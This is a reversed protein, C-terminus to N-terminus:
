VAHIAERNSKVLYSIAAALVNTDDRFSGLATNCRSCLIGRVRNTVHDHDVKAGSKGGLVLAHKCIACQGNQDNFLAEVQELELGYHFRYYHKRHLVKTQAPNNKRWEILEIRRQEKHRARYQKQCLVNKEPTWADIRNPDRQICGCSKSRGSLLSSRLVVRRTGCSCRCGWLTAYGDTCGAHAVVTWLGFQQGTIDQLDSRISRAREKIIEVM